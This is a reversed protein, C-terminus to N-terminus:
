AFCCQLFILEGKRHLGYALVFCIGRHGVVDVVGCRSNAKSGSARIVADVKGLVIAVTSGVALKDEGLIHHIRAFVLEGVFKGLNNGIRGDVNAIAIPAIQVGVDDIVAHLVQAGVLQGDIRGGIREMDLQIAVDKLVVILSLSGRPTRHLIGFCSLVHVICRAEFPLDRVEQVVAVRQEDLDISGLHPVVCIVM